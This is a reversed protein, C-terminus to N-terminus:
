GVTLSAGPDFVEGGVGLKAARAVFDEADQEIPPFTNYDPKLYELARLADDPGVTLNDGMPLVSAWLALLGFLAVGGLAM